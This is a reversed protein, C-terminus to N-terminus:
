YGGQYGHAIKNLLDRVNEASESEEEEEEEESPLPFYDIRPVACPALNVLRDVYDAAQPNNLGIM